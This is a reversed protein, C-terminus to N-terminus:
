KRGYSLLGLLSVMLRQPSIMLLLKRLTGIHLSRPSEKRKPAKKKM